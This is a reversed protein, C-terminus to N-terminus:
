GRASGPSPQATRTLCATAPGKRLAGARESQPAPLSPPHTARARELARQPDAVPTHCCRSARLLNHSAAAFGWRGRCPLFAVGRGANSAGAGARGGQVAKRWRPTACGFRGGAARQGSGAVVTMWGGAGRHGRAATRKTAGAGRRAYATTPTNRPASFDHDHATAGLM